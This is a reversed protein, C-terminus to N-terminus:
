LMSSSRKCHLKRHCNACVVDCKEIEDIVREMSSRVIMRSILGDKKSPDSHHFDLCAPHSEGCKVCALGCKLEWLWDWRELRRDRCRDTIDKRHEAVYLRNKEVLTEKNKEYYGVHYEKMRTSIADKHEEYYEKQNQLIVDKNESYYQKHKLSLEEKHNAYYEKNTNRVKEKNKERYNKQYEKYKEADKFPM